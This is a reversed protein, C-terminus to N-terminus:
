RFILYGYYYAGCSVDVTSWIINETTNVEEETRIVINETKIVKETSQM